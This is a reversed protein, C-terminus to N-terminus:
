LKHILVVDLETKIVDLNEDCQMNHKSAQSYRPIVFPLFKPTCTDITIFETEALQQRSWLTWKTCIGKLLKVLFYHYLLEIRCSAFYM